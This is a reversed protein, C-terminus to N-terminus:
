FLLNVYIFFTYYIERKHSAANKENIVNKILPNLGPGYFFIYFQVIHQLCFSREPYPLKVPSAGSREPQSWFLPPPPAKDGTVLVVVLSTDNNKDCRPRLRCKEVTM